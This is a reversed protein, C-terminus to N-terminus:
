GRMKMSEEGKGEGGGMEMSEEERELGGMEM